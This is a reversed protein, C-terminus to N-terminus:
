AHCPANGLLVKDSKLDQNDQGVLKQKWAACAPLWAAERKEDPVADVSVKAKQTQEAEM